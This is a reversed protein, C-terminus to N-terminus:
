RTDGAVAGAAERRLVPRYLNPESTALARLAAAHPAFGPDALARRFSEEDRWYAVNVYAGPQGVHRVLTHAVFGPRGAMFESTESFTREFDEAPAHVLFRNVFVVGDRDTPDSEGARM